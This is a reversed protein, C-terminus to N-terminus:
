SCQINEENSNVGTHKELEKYRQELEKYRQELAAYREKMLLYLCELEQTYESNL